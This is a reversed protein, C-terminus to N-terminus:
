DLELLPSGADVTAGPSVLIRGVRGSRSARVPNQMKMAEITVLLDRERVSDGTAVHVDIVLGSMPSRVANTSSHVAAPRQDIAAALDAYAEAIWPAAADEDYVPEFAGAVADAGIVDLVHEQARLLAHAEQLSIAAFRVSEGPALQAVRGLDVTAVTAIKTYGGTTGRDAMLVIPLGDGTVQIAGCVTGDSVIDAGTRHAIRPGAFRSGVRDSQSTLMYADRLFTALGDETFADDQPGLVVRVPGGRGYRPVGAQPMRRVIPACPTDADVLRLRDGARLARGDYGGFGGRTFTSRSDLVLPVDIGGAVALYARLGQRNAGFTVHTGRRVCLTRWMALPEGDMMPGLDAGTIAVLADGAFRLEPGVLTIELAAANDANGALRNAARLAFPDMAGCVPVGVRQYGFRGLDQVTTLLGGDLV